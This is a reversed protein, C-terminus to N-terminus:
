AEKKPPKQLKIDKNTEFLVQITREKEVLLDQLIKQADQMKATTENVQNLQSRLMETIPTQEALNRLLDLQRTVAALQDDRDRLRATLLLVQHAQDTNTRELDANKRYLDVNESQMKGLLDSMKSDADVEQSTTEAKIRRRYLFFTVVAGLASSGLIALIFTMLNNM